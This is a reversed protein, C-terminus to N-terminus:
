WASNMLLFRANGITIAHPLVGYRERWVDRTVVDCIDHNGPVRHVPAGIGGLAADLREWDARIVNPDAPGERDVDGWISDGCLFVADADERRVCDVVEELNVLLEGNRDGRLHGLVVFRMPDQSAGAVAAMAILAVM